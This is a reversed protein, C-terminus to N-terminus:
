NRIVFSMVDKNPHNKKIYWILKEEQEPHFTILVTKEEEQKITNNELSYSKTYQTRQVRTAFWWKLMGIIFKKLERPKNPYTTILLLM